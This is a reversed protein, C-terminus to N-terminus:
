YLALNWGEISIATGNLSHFRQYCEEIIPHVMKSIIHLIVLFFYFIWIIILLRSINFKILFNSNFSNFLCSYVSSNTSLSCDEKTSYRAFSFGFVLYYSILVSFFGVTYGALM